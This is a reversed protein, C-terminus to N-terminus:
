ALRARAAPRAARSASRSTAINHFVLHRECQDRQRDHYRETKGNSLPGLPGLGVQKFFPAAARGLGLNRRDFGIEGAFLDPVHQGEGVDQAAVRAPM